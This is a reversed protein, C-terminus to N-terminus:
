NEQFLLFTREGTFSLLRALALPNPSCPWNYEERLSAALDHISIVDGGGTIIGNVTEFLPNLLAHSM